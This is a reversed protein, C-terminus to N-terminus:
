RAYGAGGAARGNKPLGAEIRLALAEQWQEGARESEWAAIEALMGRTFRGTSTFPDVDETASYLAGGVSEIRHLNLAWGHRHRGFRSFKWCVVEDAEGREVAAIAAQV